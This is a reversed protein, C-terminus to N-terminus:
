ARVTQVPHHIGRFHCRNAALVLIEMECCLFQDSKGIIPAAAIIDANLQDSDPADLSHPHIASPGVFQVSVPESSDKQKAASRGAWHAFEMGAILEIM